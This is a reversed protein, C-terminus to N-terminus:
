VTVFREYSQESQSRSADYVRDMAKLLKLDSAPLELILLYQM